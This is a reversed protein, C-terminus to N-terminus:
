GLVGGLVPDCWEQLRLRTQALGSVLCYVAGLEQPRFTM